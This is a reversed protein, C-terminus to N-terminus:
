EMTPEHAKKRHGSNIQGTNIQSKSFEPDMNFFDTEDSSDSKPRTSELKMIKTSNSSENDVMHSTIMTSRGPRGDSQDLIVLNSSFRGAKKEDEDVM